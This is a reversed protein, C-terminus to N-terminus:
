TNSRDHRRSGPCAASLHFLTMGPYLLMQRSGAYTGIHTGEARSRAPPRRSPQSPGERVRDPHVRCRSSACRHRHRAVGRRRSRRPRTGSCRTDPLGMCPSGRALEDMLASIAQRGFQSERLVLQERQLENVLRNWRRPSRCRGGSEAVRGDGDVDRHVEHHCPSRRDTTWEVM